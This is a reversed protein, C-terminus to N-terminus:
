ANIKYPNYDTPKISALTHNVLRHHAEDARIALIVDRMTGEPKLEWYKIAMDPAKETKWHGILTGEDIEELCKTYTIVAEEELYGVFRHVFHPILVYLIAFTPVVVVQALVVGTRFLLSPKMLEMAFMLHMRENEAEELLTHIWGHDRRMKRLSSLHRVMAGVMGPIAAVTELFAIRTLWVKADRPRWRYGSATDYGFRLARVLYLAVRDLLNQPPKHTIEVSEVEEDTWIPSASTPTDMVGKEVKAAPMKGTARPKDSHFHIIEEPDSVTEFDHHFDKRRINQIEDEVKENFPKKSVAYAASTHVSASLSTVAPLQIIRISDNKVNKLKLTPTHHFHRLCRAQRAATALM